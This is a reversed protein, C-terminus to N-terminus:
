EGYGVAPVMDVALGRGVVAVDGLGNCEDKEWADPRGWNVVPEGSSLRGGEAFM